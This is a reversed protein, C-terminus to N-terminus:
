IPKCVQDCINYSIDEIIFLIVAKPEAYVEWAKIMGGCLGSLAANTPM